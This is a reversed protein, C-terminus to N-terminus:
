IKVGKITMIQQIIVREKHLALITALLTEPEELKNSESCLLDDLKLATNLMKFNEVWEYDHLLALSLLAFNIYNRYDSDAAKMSPHYASYLKKSVEFRKLFRNLWLLYSDRTITNQQVAIQLLLRLTSETDIRKATNLETTSQLCPPLHEKDSSLMLQAHITQIDKSFLNKNQELIDKWNLLWLLNSQNQKKLNDIYSCELDAIFTARQEFYDHLFEAGHYASFMYYEPHSILNRQTYPYITEIAM